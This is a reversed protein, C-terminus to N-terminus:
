WRPRRGTIADDVALERLERGVDPHDEAVAALLEERARTARAHDRGWAASVGHMEILRRATAYCLHYGPGDWDLGDM